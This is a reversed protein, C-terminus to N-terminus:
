DEYYTGDAEGLEGVKFQPVLIPYIYIYTILHRYTMLHRKIEYKIIYIIYM